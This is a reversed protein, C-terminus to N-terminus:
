SKVQVKLGELPARNSLTQEYEAKLEEHEEVLQEHAVSLQKHAATQAGPVVLTVMIVLAEALDMGTQVGSLKLAVEPLVVVLVPPLWRWQSPIKDWLPQFAKIIRTAALLGGSLAVGIEVPTLM